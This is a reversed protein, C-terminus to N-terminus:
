RGSVEHWWEVFTSAQERTLERVLRLEAPTLDSAYALEVTQSRSRGARAPGTSM